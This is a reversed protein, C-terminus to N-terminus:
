AKKLPQEETARESFFAQLRREESAPGPGLVAKRLPSFICVTLFMKALYVGRRWNPKLACGPSAGEQAQQEEDEECLGDEPHREEEEEHPQGVYPQGGHVSAHRVRLMRVAAHVRLKQM